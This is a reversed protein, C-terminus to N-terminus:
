AALERIEIVAEGPKRIEGRRVTLEDIQSDDVWVGARTLTDATVKVRNDIDYSRQSPAHLTITVSLRGQMPEGEYQGSVAKVGEDRYERGKKSLISRVRGGQAFARWVSNVSPPWPLTITM